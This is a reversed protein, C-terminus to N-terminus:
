LPLIMHAKLLPRTSPAVLTRIRPPSVLKSSSQQVRRPHRVPLASDDSEVLFLGHEETSYFGDASEELAVAENALVDAAKPRLFGRLAVFGQLDLMRHCRAVLAEGEEENLRDIPYKTCDVMNQASLSSLPRRGVSPLLALRRASRAM